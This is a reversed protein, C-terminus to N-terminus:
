RNFHIFRKLYISTQEIAVDSYNTFAVIVHATQGPVYGSFSLKVTMMLPDSQCFLCGFRKIEESETPYKLYAELNLDDNRVVTFQLITEMDFGRPVVLKAEVNYRISGFSAEFSAPILPPM